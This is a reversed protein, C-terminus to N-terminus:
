RWSAGRTRRWAKGIEPRLTLEILRLYAPSADGDLSAIEELVEHEASRNGLHRHVAALLM